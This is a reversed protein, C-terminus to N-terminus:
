KKEIYVKLRKSLTEIMKMAWAPKQYIVRDFTKVPIEFLESDELAIVSASRPEANFYAMEGVFEGPNVEGLIVKQDRDNVHFAQLKGKKLIYIQEAADGIRILLEGTKIKRTVYPAAHHDFSFRFSKKVALKWDEASPEREFFQFKGVMMEDLYESKEPFNGIVIYATQALDRNQVGDKLITAASLFATDVVVLQPPNLKLRQEYEATNAMSFVSIDIYDTMFAMELDNRKQDDFIALYLTVKSDTSM